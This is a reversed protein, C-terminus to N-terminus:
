APPEKFPGKPLKVDVTMTDRYPPPEPIHPTLMAGRAIFFVAITAIPAMFVVFVEFASM